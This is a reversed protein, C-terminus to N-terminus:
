GGCSTTVQGGRGRGWTTVQGGEGGGRPQHHQHHGSRGEGGGVALSRVEGEGGGPLQHHQHHGPEDDRPQGVRRHREVGGNGSRVVKGDVHHSHHRQEGLQGTEGVREAVYEDGGSVPLDGLVSSNFRTDRTLLLFLSFTNFINISVYNIEM